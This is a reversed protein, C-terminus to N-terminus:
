YYGIWIADILSLALAIESAVGLAIDECYAARTWLRAPVTYLEYM